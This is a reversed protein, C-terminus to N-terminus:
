YYCLTIYIITIIILIILMFTTNITAFHLTFGYSVGMYNGDSHTNITAFHLTFRKYGFLDTVDKALILLLLTYHLDIELKEDQEINKLILLLLTYHLNELVYKKKNEATHILLLM